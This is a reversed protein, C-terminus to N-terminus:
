NKFTINIVKCKIVRADPTVAELVTVRKRGFGLNNKKKKKM